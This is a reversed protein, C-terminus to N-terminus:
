SAGAARRNQNEDALEAVLRGVEVPDSSAKSEHRRRPTVTGHEQEKDGTVLMVPIKQVEAERIKFGLKENRSDLQARIGAAGLKAQV